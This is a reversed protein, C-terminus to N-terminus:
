IRKTVQTAIVKGNVISHVTTINYGANYLDATNYGGTKLDSMSYGVNILNTITYGAAKLQSVNYGANVFESKNYGAVILDSLTYGAGILNAITYGAVKLQSVNYRANEFETKSYSAVILDSLTYGLIILNAITYGDAKLQSVNYGANVFESKNYGLTKISTLSFGIRILDAITYGAAKLHSGNYGAAAFQSKAYGVAKLDFLTYGANILNAITYGAAKLQSVNYGANIIESKDYGAAKLDSLTYGGAILNFITYGAVKFDNNVLPSVLPTLTITAGLVNCTCTGISPSIVMIGIQEKGVNDIGYKSNVIFKNIGNVLLQTVFYQGIWGDGSTFTKRCIYVETNPQIGNVDVSVLATGFNSYYEAFVNYEAGSNEPTRIGSPINLFYKNNVITNYSSTGYLLPFAVTPFGLGNSPPPVVTDSGETVQLNGSWVYWSSGVLQGYISIISEDTSSVSVGGWVPEYTNNDSFVLIESDTPRIFYIFQFIKDTIWRGTGERPVGNDSYITGIIQVYGEWMSINAATVLM